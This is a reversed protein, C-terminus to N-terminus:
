MMPVRQIWAVARNKDGCAVCLDGDQSRANAINHPVADHSHWRRVHRSNRDYLDPLDLCPDGSTQNFIGSDRLWDCCYQQQIEAYERHELLPPYNLNYPLRIIDLGTWANVDIHM